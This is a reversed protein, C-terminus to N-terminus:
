WYLYAHGARKYPLRLRLYTKGTMCSGRRIEWAEKKGNPNSFIDTIKASLNIISGEKHACFDYKATFFRYGCNRDGM